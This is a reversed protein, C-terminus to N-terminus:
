AEILSGYLHYFSCLCSGAITDTYLLYFQVINCLFLLPVDGGIKTDIM